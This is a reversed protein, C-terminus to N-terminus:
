KSSKSAIFYKYTSGSSNLYNHTNFFIYGIYTLVVDYLFLTIYLRLSIFERM